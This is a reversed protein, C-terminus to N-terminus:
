SAPGFADQLVEAVSLEAAIQFRSKHEVLSAVQIARGPDAACVLAADNEFQRRGGTSRPRLGDNVAKRIASAIRRRRVLRRTPDYKVVRSINITDYAAAITTRTTAACNIFQRRSGASIPIQRDQM